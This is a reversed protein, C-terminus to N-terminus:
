LTHPMQKGMEADYRCQCGISQCTCYVYRELWTYISSGWGEPSHEDLDYQECGANLMAGGSLLVGAAATLLHRRCCTFHRNTKM